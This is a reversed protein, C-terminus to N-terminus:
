VVDAFGRRTRQFWWFGLWATVISVVLYQSWITWRLAEGWILVNRSDEIIYTLPNLSLLVQYPEPLASAPYFIPSLFLLAM